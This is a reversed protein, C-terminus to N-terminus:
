KQYIQLIKTWRSKNSVVLSIPIAMYKFPSWGLEVHIKIEQYIQQLTTDNCHWGFVQSKEKNILGRSLKMYPDLVQKFRLVMINSAGGL